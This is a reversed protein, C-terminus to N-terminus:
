GAGFLLFEEMLLVMSESMTFIKQDWPGVSM